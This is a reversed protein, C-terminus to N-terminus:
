LRQYAYMLIKEYRQQLMTKYFHKRIESVGEIEDILTYIWDFHIRPVIRKLAANCDEFQLSSIVEFYSSKRNKVKIHSTPFQYIRQNIEDESALVAKIREDTNLKPYLSSGNDYVPAIRYQNDRKIFGWNGGHRDFNGILADVIFMDWFREVTEEVNTSKMNERLMATIDEYTYQYLEKDRELSSEGVGNFAVLMDEPELFNKMVVVNKGDCTGLFTEQVPIGISQFIHSGLYESVHSFTLGIESDKQFKVIYRHGGIIIEHKREAGSFMVPTKEYKSYDRM